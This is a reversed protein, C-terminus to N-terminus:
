GYHLLINLIDVKRGSKKSEPEEDPNYTLPTYGKEIWKNIFKLRIDSHEIAKRYSLIHSIIAGTLIFWCLLLINPYEFVQDKLGTLYNISLVFVGTSIIFLVNDLGKGNENRTATERDFRRYSLDRLYDLKEKDM